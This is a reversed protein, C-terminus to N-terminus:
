KIKAIYNSPTIDLTKELDDNIKFFKTTDKGYDFVRYLYYDEGKEKSVKIENPSVFFSDTIKGRTTKVEIYKPERTKKDFSMIDYGHGDGKELSTHEVRELLDELGELQKKEYELVALEGFKGLRKNERENGSYNWVKNSDGKRKSINIQDSGTPPDVEVLSSVEEAQSMEVEEFNNVKTLEESWDALKWVFWIKGNNDKYDNVYEVRGM